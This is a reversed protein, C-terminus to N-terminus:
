QESRGRIHFLEPLNIKIYQLTRHFFIKTNRPSINSLEKLHTSIHAIYGETFAVVIYGDGFLQYNIIKGYKPEFLLELPTKNSDPEFMLISKQALISTISKQFNDKDDSKARAWRITKPEFKVTM